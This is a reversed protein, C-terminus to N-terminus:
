WQRSSRVGCAEAMSAVFRPALGFRQLVSQALRQELAAAAVSAVFIASIDAGVQTWLADFDVNDVPGAQMSGAHTASGLGRLENGDWLAGKLRTNGLDILLRM